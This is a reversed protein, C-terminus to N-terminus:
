SEGSPETQPEDQDAASTKRGARVRKTAPEPDSDPQQDDPTDSTETLPLEPDPTVADQQLPEDATVNSEPEDLSGVVVIAGGIQVLKRVDDTVAM